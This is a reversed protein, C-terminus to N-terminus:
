PNRMLFKQVISFDEKESIIYKYAFATIHENLYIVNEKNPLMLPGTIEKIKDALIYWIAKNEELFKYLPRLDVLLICLNSTIPIHFEIGKSLYGLGSSYQNEGLLRGLTKNYTNDKIIPNDSTYYLIGTNNICLIWTYDVIMLAEQDFRKMMNM